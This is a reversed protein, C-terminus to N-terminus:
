TLIVWHLAYAHEIQAQKLERAIRKEEKLSRAQRLDRRVRVVQRLTTTIKNQLWQPIIM